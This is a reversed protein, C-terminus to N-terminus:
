GDEPKQLSLFRHEERDQEPKKSTKGSPPCELTSSLRLNRLVVRPKSSLKEDRHPSTHKEQRNGTFLFSM